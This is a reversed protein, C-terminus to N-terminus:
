LWLDCAASPLFFLLYDRQSSFTMDKEGLLMITIFIDNFLEM